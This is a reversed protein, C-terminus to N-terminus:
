LCDCGKFGFFIRIIEIIKPNIESAGDILKTIKSFQALFYAKAVRKPGIPVM